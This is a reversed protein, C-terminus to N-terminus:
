KRSESFVCQRQHSDMAAITTIPHSQCSFVRTLELKAVIRSSAVLALVMVELTRRTTAIVFMTM